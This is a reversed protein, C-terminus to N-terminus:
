WGQKVTDYYLPPITISNNNITHFYIKGSPDRKLGMEFSQSRDKHDNQTYFINDISSLFSHNMIETNNIIFYSAGLALGLLFFPIAYDILKSKISKKDKQAM